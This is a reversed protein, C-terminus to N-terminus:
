PRLPARQTVRLPSTGASKLSLSPNRKTEGASQYSIETNQNSAPNQNESINLIDFSSLRYSSLRGGTPRAQTLFKKPLFKWRVKFRILPNLRIVALIGLECTANM